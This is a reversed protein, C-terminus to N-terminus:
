CNQVRILRKNTPIRVQQWSKGKIELQRKLCKSFVFKSHRQRHCRNINGMSFETTVWNKTRIPLKVIVNTSSSIVAQNDSHM